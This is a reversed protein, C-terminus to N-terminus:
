SWYAAAATLQAVNQAALDTTFIDTAQLSNINANNAALEESDCKQDVRINNCTIDTATIDNSFETPEGVFKKKGRITQETDLTVYLRDLVTNDSTLQGMMEKLKDFDTNKTYNQKIDNIEAICNLLQNFLPQLINAIKVKYSNYKDDDNKKSVEFWIDQTSVSLQSVDALIDLNSIPRIEM